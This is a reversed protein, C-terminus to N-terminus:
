LSRGTLLCIFDGIGDQLFLSGVLEMWSAYSVNFVCQGETLLRIREGNQALKNRLLHSIEKNKVLENMSRIKQLFIM